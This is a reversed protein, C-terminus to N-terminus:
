VNLLREENHKPKQLYDMHRNLIQNWNVIDSEEISARVVEGNPKKYIHTSHASRSGGHSLTRAVTIPVAGAVWGHEKYARLCMDVDDQGFPAFAEDLYNIQEAKKRDLMLPGRNIADRIVVMNNPIDTVERGVADYYWISGGTSANVANRGSVAIFDPYCLFPKLLKQDFNPELILDDDQTIIVYDANSTKMGLNNARTEYICDTLISVTNFKLDIGRLTEQAVELSNDTCGDFLMILNKVMPSSFTALNQIVNGILFNKNHITLIIDIM